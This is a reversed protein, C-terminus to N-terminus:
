TMQHVVSEPTTELIEGGHRIRPISVRFKPCRRPQAVTKNAVPNTVITRVDFISNPSMM